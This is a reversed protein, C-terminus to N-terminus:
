EIELAEKVARVGGKLSSIEGDYKEIVGDLKEDIKKIDDKTAIDNLQKDVADFSKKVMEATPFVDKFAKVLKKVDKDDLM